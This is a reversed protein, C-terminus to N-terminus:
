ACCDRAPCGRNSMMAATRVAEGGVDRPEFGLAREAAIVAQVALQEVRDTNRSFLGIQRADEDNPNEPEPPPLDAKASTAM